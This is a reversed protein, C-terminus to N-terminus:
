GRTNCPGSAPFPNRHRTMAVCRARDPLLDALEIGGIPLRPKGILAIGAVARGVVRAQNQNADVDMRRHKELDVLRLRHHEVLDRLSPQRPGIWVDPDHVLQRLGVPLFTAVDRPQERRWSKPKRATVIALMQDGAEPPSSAYRGNAAPRLARRWSVLYVVSVISPSNFKHGFCTREM